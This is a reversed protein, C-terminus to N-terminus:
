GSARSGLMPCIRAALRGTLGDEDEVADFDENDVKGWRTYCGTDQGVLRWFLVGRSFLRPRSEDVVFPDFADVALCEFGDIRGVFLGDNRDM